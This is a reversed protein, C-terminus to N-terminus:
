FGRELDVSPPQHDDLFIWLSIAVQSNGNKVNLGNTEVQFVNPSRHTLLKHSRRGAVIRIGMVKVIQILNHVNARNGILITTESLESDL